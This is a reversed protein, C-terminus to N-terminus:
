ASILGRKVTRAVLSLDQDDGDLRLADVVSVPPQSVFRPATGRHPWSAAHVLFPHCLYVDGADGTAYAIPGSPAPLPAEIGYVGDVGFPRLLSPMIRHSGPMIRTPADGAEVDSLLCLLLLGRERSQYNVHWRGDSAEFSSDIHWGADGPDIAAPFRVVFLGLNPRPLWRDPDLLQHIAELLHPSNAAQRLPEGTVLGRVVPDRWSMEDHLDIHLQAAALDRCEAALDKPFASRLHVFGQEAFQELEVANLVLGM